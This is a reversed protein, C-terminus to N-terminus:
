GRRPIMPWDIEILRAEDRDQQTRATWQDLGGDTV